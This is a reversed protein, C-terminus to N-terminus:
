SQIREIFSFDRIELFPNGRGDSRPVAGYILLRAGPLLGDFANSLERWAVLRTEGTEDGVLVEGMLVPTGEKRRIDKLTPKALVVVEVIGAAKVKPIDQVTFKFGELEQHSEGKLHMIHGSTDPLFIENGKISLDDFVVLDGVKFSDLLNVGLGTITLTYSRGGQGLLATRRLKHDVQLAHGISIIVFPKSQPEPITTEQHQALIEVQTDESGHLEILGSPQARSDLNVLRIEMGSRILSEYAQNHSWIVVRLPSRSGMSDAISFQLARGTTNDNRQFSILRPESVVFGKVVLGRKQYTITSPSVTVVDLSKNGYISPELREVKTKPGAHIELINDRSLRTSVNSVRVPEGPAFTSFPDERAISNWLLLRVVIGEDFLFASRYVGETRDKKIFNRLKGTSLFFAQINIASMNPSLEKLVFDNFGSDSLELSLDNVVLYAAGIDTLFGAGVTKKKETILQLIAQRTLDGRRRLIEQIIRELRDGPL